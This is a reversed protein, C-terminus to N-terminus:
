RALNTGVSPPTVNREIHKGAAGVFWTTIFMLLAADDFLGVVPIYGLINLPTFVLVALVGATAKLSVPVREDRLLPLVRGLNRRAFFLTRLFRM